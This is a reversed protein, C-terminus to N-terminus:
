NLIKTYEGCVRPHDWPCSPSPTRYATSGACAPSDKESLNEKEAILKAFAHIKLFHQITKTDCAYYELMAFCVASIQEAKM